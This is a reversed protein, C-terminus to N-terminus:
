ITPKTGITAFRTMASFFRGDAVADELYTRLQQAEVVTITGHKQAADVAYILRTCRPRAETGTWILTIPYTHVATLGAEVFLRYMQHAIGGQQVSNRRFTIVRQTIEEYPSDILLSDHDPDTILVKGGPKAVRIIEALAQRPEQLHQFVRNSFCRDFRNDDYKLHYVDQQEFHLNGVEDPYQRQAEAIMNQSADVGIVMGTDGVFTAMEATDQGVGCGVDLLQQGPQIDLLKILQQKAFQNAATANQQHLAQIFFDPSTARDVETFESKPISQNMM